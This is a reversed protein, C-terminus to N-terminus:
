ATKEALTKPGYGWGKCSPVDILVLESSEHPGLALLEEVRRPAARDEICRRVSGTSKLPRLRCGRRM